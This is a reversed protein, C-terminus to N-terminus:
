GQGASAAQSERAPTEWSVAQSAKALSSSIAARACSLPSGSNMLAEFNRLHTTQLQGGLRKWLEIEM